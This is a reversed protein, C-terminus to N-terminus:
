LTQAFYKLTSLKLIVELSVWILLHLECSLWIKCLCRKFGLATGRINGLRGAYKDDVGVVERGVEQVELQARNSNSFAFSRLKFLAM